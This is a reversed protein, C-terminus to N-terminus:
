ESGVPHSRHSPRSRKKKKKGSVSAFKTNPPTSVSNQKKGRKRAKHNRDRKRKPEATTDMLIPQGDTPAPVADTMEEDEIEGEEEEDSSSEPELQEGAEVAMRSGSAIDKEKAEVQSTLM